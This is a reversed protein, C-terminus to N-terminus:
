LNPVVPTFVAVFTGNGPKTRSIGKLSHWGVSRIQNFATKGFSIGTLIL